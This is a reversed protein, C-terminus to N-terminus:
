SLDSSAHMQTSRTEIPLHEALTIAVAAEGFTDSLPHATSAVLMKTVTMEIYVSAVPLVSTLSTIQVLFLSAFAVEQQITCMQQPPPGDM